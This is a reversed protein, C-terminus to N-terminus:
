VKRVLLILEGKIKGFTNEFGDYDHSQQLKKVSEGWRDFLEMADLEHAIFIRDQIIRISELYKGNVVEIEEGSINGPGRAYQDIQGMAAVTLSTILEQYERKRNDMLWQRRQNRNAVYAGVLVGVLPGLAAWSKSAYEAIGKWTEPQM